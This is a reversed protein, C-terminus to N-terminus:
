EVYEKFDDLTEDFDESIFEVLNPLEGIKRSQTPKLIPTLVVLPNQGKAIVVEEGELAEKILRSLHTKAEHITVM